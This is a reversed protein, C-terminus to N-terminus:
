SASMLFLYTHLCYFNLFHIFFSLMLQLCMKHQGKGGDGRSLYTTVPRACQREFCRFVNSMLKRIGRREGDWIGGWATHTFNCDTGQPLLVTAHLPWGVSREM